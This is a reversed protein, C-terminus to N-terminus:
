LEDSQRTSFSASTLATAFYEPLGQVQGQVAPVGGNNVQQFGLAGAGRGQFELGKAQGFLDM